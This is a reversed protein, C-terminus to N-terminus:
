KSFVKASIEDMYEQPSTIIIKDFESIECFQKICYSLIPKNNIKIFQKPIKKGIRTGTGGSLIVAFIM